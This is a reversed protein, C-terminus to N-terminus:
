KPQDKTERYLNIRKREMNLYRVVRKSPPYQRNLVRCIVSASIGSERALARMGGAEDVLDQLRAILDDDDLTFRNNM